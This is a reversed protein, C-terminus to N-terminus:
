KDMYNSQTVPWLPKKFIVWKLNSFLCIQFIDVEAMKLDLAFAAVLKLYDTWNTVTYCNVLVCEVYPCTLPFRLFM